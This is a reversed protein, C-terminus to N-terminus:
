ATLVPTRYGANSGIVTLDAVRDGVQFGRVGEGLQDIEGVIDYGLTIPTKRRATPPLPSPPDVHRHVARELRARPRVEGRGATPLPTSWRSGM